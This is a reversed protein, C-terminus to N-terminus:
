DRQLLKRVLGALEEISYFAIQIAGRGQQSRINVRTGLSSQLEATWSKIEPEVTVQREHGRVKVSRGRAEALRVPLGEKVITRFLKLQEDPSEVGLLVKAHGFSLVGDRIAVQIEAPLTLLRETNAVQSRSKGVRKAVEEQTLDFEEQLQRFAQAEELPNLNQRQLNEVLALELREHEQLQRVIAPVTKLGAIQAARLRREGAVLEYHGDLRSTVILPQLIGHQKVSSVLEELSDHDFHQRPQHPNPSLLALPLQQVQEFSVVPAPVALHEDKPATGSGWFNGGPARKAPILSGLGKGLQFPKAM